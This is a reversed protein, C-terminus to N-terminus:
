QLISPTFKQVQGRSASINDIIKNYDMEDLATKYISMAQAMMIAAVEMAGYEEVKSDTFGLYTNYLEELRDDNM